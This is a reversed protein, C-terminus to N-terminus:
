RPKLDVQFSVSKSDPTPALPGMIWGINVEASATSVLAPVIVTKRATSPVFPSEQARSVCLWFLIFCDHVELSLM